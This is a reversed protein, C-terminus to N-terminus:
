HAFLQDLTFPHGTRHLRFGLHRQRVSRRSPSQIPRHDVDGEDLPQGATRRRLRDSRVLGPASDDIQPQRLDGLPRRVLAPEEEVPSLVRSTRRVQGGRVPGRGALTPRQGFRAGPDM